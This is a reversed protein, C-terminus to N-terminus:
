SREDLSRRDRFISGTGWTRTPSCKRNRLTSGRLPISRTQTQRRCAATDAPPYRPVNAFQNMPARLSGELETVNSMQVRTVETTILSYGYIYQREAIAAGGWAFAIGCPGGFRDRDWRAHEFWGIRSRASLNEHHYGKSDVRRITLCM